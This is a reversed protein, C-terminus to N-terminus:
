RPRISQCTHNANKLLVISERTVRQVEDGARILWPDGGTKGIAAYPVRDPPDLLGLKLAVRFNRVVGDIDVLRLGKDLATRVADPYRDLFVTIGAKITAAAGEELTPYQHHASILLGLAGGDTCIIGDLGWDKMTMERLFPQVMCPIGNVKNYAAMFAKAGGEVVGM